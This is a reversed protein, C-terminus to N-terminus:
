HLNIQEPDHWITFQLFFYGILTGLPFGRMLLVGIFESVKRSAECMRRSRYALVLHAFAVVVLLIPPLISLNKEAIGLWVFFVCLLFYILALAIHSRMLKVHNNKYSQSSKM